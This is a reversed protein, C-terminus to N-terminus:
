GRSRLGVGKSRQVEGQPEDTSEDVRYTSDQIARILCKGFRLGQISSCQAELQNKCINLHPAVVRSLTHSVHALTPPSRRYKSTSKMAISVLKAHAKRLMPEGLPYVTPLDAGLRLLFLLM